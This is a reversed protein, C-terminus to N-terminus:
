EEKNMEAAEGSVDEEEEEKVEKEAERPQQQAACEVVTEGETKEGEEEAPPPAVGGEEEQYQHQEQQQQQKQQQRQLESNRRMRTEMNSLERKRFVTMARGMCIGCIKEGKMAERGYCCRGCYIQGCNRCHNYFTLFDFDHTCEPCQAPKEIQWNPDGENVPKFDPFLQCLSNKIREEETMMEQSQPQDNNHNTGDAPASSQNKKVASKNCQGMNKKQTRRNKKTIKKKNNRKLFYQQAKRQNHFVFPTLISVTM